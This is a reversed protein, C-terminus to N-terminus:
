NIGVIQDPHFFMACIWVHVVLCDPGVYYSYGVKISRLTDM